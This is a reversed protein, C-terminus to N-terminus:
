VLNSEQTGDSLRPTLYLFYQVSVVGTSEASMEVTMLKKEQNKFRMLPATQSLCKSVPIPANVPSFAANMEASETLLRSSLWQRTTKAPLTLIIM